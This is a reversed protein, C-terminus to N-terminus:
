DNPIHIKKKILMSIDNMLLCNLLLAIFGELGFIIGWCRGVDFASCLMCCFDMYSIESCLSTNALISGVSAYKQATKCIM